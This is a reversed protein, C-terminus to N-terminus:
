SIRALKVSRFFLPIMPIKLKIAIKVAWPSFGLTHDFINAEVRNESNDINDVTTAVVNKKKLVSFMARSLEFPNGGRVMLIKLEMSEFIALYM